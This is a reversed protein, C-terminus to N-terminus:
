KLQTDYIDRKIIEGKRLVLLGVEIRDSGEWRFECITGGNRAEAEYADFLAITRGHILNANTAWQSAFDQIRRNSKFQM